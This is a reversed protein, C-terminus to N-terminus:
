RRKRKSGMTAYRPGGLKMREVQKPNPIHELKTWGKRVLERFEQTVQPASKGRHHVEEFLLYGTPGKGVFDVPIKDYQRSRMKKLYDRTEDMDKDKIKADSRGTEAFSRMQIGKELETMIQLDCGYEIFPFEAAYLMEKEMAIRMHVEGLKPYVEEWYLHKLFM